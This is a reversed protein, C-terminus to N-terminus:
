SWGTSSPPGDVAGRSQRKGSLGARNARLGRIPHRDAEALDEQRNEEIVRGEVIPTDGDSYVPYSVYYGKKLIRNLEKDFDWNEKRRAHFYVHSVVKDYPHREMSFTFYEDWLEQGITEIRKKSVM